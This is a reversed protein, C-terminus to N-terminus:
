FLEVKSTESNKIKLFIRQIKYFNVLNELVNKQIKQSIESNELFIKFKKFIKMSIKYFFKLFIKLVQINNNELYM